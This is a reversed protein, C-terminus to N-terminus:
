NNTTSQLLYLSQNDFVGCRPVSLQRECCTRTFSSFRVVTHLLYGIVFLEMERLCHPRPRLARGEHRRGFVCLVVVLVCMRYRIVLLWYCVVFSVCAIPGRAYLEAKM